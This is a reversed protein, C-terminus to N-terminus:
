YSYNQDINFAKSNVLKAANKLDKETCRNPKKLKNKNTKLQSQFKFIYMSITKYKSRGQRM